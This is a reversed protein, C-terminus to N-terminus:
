TRIGGPGRVPLPHIEGGIGAAPGVGPPLTERVPCGLLDGEADTLFFSNMESRVSAREDCRDACALACQPDVIGVAVPLHSRFAVTKERGDSGIALLQIVQYAGASRM